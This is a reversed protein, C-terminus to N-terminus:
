LEPLDDIVTTSTQQPAYQQQVPQNNYVPQQPAYQQQTPQNNYVPQQPAYQQQTPQPNYLPQQPAYQQQVPQPNYMPQQPAYQQQVPQPNYLPQQGNPNLMATNMVIRNTNGILHGYGWIIHYLVKCSICIVFGGVPITCALILYISYDDVAYLIFLVIMAILSLSLFVVGIIDIIRAILKIKNEVGYDDTSSLPVPAKVSPKSAEIRKAAAIDEKTPLLPLTYLISGALVCGATIFSAIISLIYDDYTTFVASVISLALLSFLGTLTGFIITFVLPNRKITEKGGFLHFGLFIVPLIFIVSSFIISAIMLIFLVINDKRLLVLVGTAGALGFSLLALIPNSDYGAFQAILGALAAVLYLVGILINKRNTGEPKDAGPQTSFFQQDM